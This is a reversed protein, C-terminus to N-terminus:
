PRQCGTTRSPTTMARWTSAATSLVLATMSGVDWPRPGLILDTVLSVIGALTLAAMMIIAMLGEGSDWGPKADDQWGPSPQWPDVPLPASAAAQDSV